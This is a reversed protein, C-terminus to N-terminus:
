GGELVDEAEGSRVLITWGTGASQFLTNLNRVQLEVRDEEFVPLGLFVLETQSSERALRSRFDEDSSKVLVVAEADVRADRALGTLDKKAGVKAEPNDVLRILRIRAREWSRHNRIIHALLLMLEANTDRGRWWVDIRNKPERGFSVDHNRGPSLGLDPDEETSVRISNINM